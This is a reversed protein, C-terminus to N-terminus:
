EAETEGTILPKVRENLFRQDVPGRQILALKGDPDILFTEPLAFIGYADKRGGDGDHLMEYTLGYERVFDRADGSLDETDMGIVVLRDENERSFKEIAPAEDRCPQCWSAWFNLLVWKGRHDALSVEGDGDLREVAADPATEGVAIQEGKKAILGFALLAIFAIAALVAIFARNSM